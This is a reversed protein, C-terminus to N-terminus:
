SVPVEAFPNRIRVTEFERGDQLDESYLVNARGAIAAQVVLADWFSVTDRRCRLISSLILPRDVQVLPLASFDVVARYASEPDLPTALKRTVAVYFEQLVQTSFLARGARVEEDLLERARKQKAPQGADFLYVLVNTDFFTKM